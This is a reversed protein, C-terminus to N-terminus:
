AFANMLHQSCHHAHASLPHLHSEAQGSSANTMHCEALLAADADMRVLESAVSLQWPSVLVGAEAASALHLPASLRQTDLLGQYRQKAQNYATFYLSWSLGACPIEVNTLGKDLIYPTHTLIVKHLM